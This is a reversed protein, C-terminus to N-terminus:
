IQQSCDCPGNPTAPMNHTGCDSDHPDLTQQAIYQAWGLPNDVPRDPGATILELARRYQEAQTKLEAQETINM